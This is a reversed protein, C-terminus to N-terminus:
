TGKQSQLIYSIDVLILEEDLFRNWPRDYFSWSKNEEIYILLVDFKTNALEEIEKKTWSDELFKLLKIIDEKSTSSQINIAIKNKM